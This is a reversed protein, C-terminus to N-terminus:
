PWPAILKGDARHGYEQLVAPIVNATILRVSGDGLAFQAGGPHYSSFGGVFLPNGPLVAARAVPGPLAATAEGLPSEEAQPDIDDLGPIPGFDVQDQPTAGFTPSPLARAGTFWNLPIGTNRITGRTGSMWGLDWADPLKEGLFITNSVGDTVDDFSVRSNLFFVGNDKADIPKEKDHHVAAYNSLASRGTTGDSPCHIFKVALAGPAANRPHYVGVSKDIAHWTNQQGIFPLVQVIWSHHYSTPLAANVIPGKANDITGPPYVGHANEYNQVALILQTLQNSCSCRRGAERAMQIAPLLLAVLVGIIAIVVLLEILTFAHRPKTRM